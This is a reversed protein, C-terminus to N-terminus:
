LLKNRLLKLIHKPFIHKLFLAVRQKIEQQFTLTRPRFDSCDRFEKIQEDTFQRSVDGKCYYRGRHVTTHIGQPNIFSERGKGQKL